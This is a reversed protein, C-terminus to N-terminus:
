DEDFPADHFGQQGHRQADREAGDDQQDYTEPQGFPVM